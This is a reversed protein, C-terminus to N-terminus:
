SLMTKTIVDDFGYFFPHVNVPYCFYGFSKRFNFDYKKEKNRLIITTAKYVNRDIKLVENVRKINYSCNLEGFCDDFTVEEVENRSIIKPRKM